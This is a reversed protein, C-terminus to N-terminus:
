KSPPGDFRNRYAKKGFFYRIGIAANLSFDTNPALDLLPVIELFFDIPTRSPLYNLGLPIRIGVKSKHEFKIRGGIGYYAVLRSMDVRVVNPSHILLDAHLHVADENEFSWAIAMDVAQDDTTWLKTSIGTPEGLIIGLGFGSDQAQVASCALLATLAFLTISRFM